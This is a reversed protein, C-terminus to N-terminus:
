KDRNAEEAAALFGEAMSGIKGKQFNVKPASDSSRVCGEPVEGPTNEFVDEIRYQPPPPMRSPPTSYPLPAYPPVSLPLFPPLILQSCIRNFSMIEM